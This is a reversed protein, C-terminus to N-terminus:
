EVWTQEIITRADDFAALALDQKDGLLYTRLLLSQRVGFFLSGPTTKMVVTFVHTIHKKLQQNTLVPNLLLEKIFDMVTQLNAVSLMM